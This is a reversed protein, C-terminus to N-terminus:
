LGAPVADAGERGLVEERELRRVIGRVCVVVVVDAGDALVFGFAIRILLHADRRHAFKAGDASHKCKFTPHQSHAM